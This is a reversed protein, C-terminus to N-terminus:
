LCEHLDGEGEFEKWLSECCQLIEQADLHFKQYNSLYAKYRLDQEERRAMMAETVGSSFGEIYTRFQSFWNVRITKVIQNLEELYSAVSIDAEQIVDEIINYNTLDETKPIFTAGQVFVINEFIKQAFAKMEEAKENFRIYKSADPYKKIFDLSCQERKQLLPLDALFIQIIESQLVKCRQYLKQEVQQAARNLAALIIEHENQRVQSLSSIFESVIYNKNTNFSDIKDKVTDFDKYFADDLAKPAGKCYELLKEMDFNLEQNSKELFVKHKQNQEDFESVVFHITEITRRVANELQKATVASLLMNYFPEFRSKKRLERNNSAFSELALSSSIGQIKLPDLVRHAKQIVDESENRKGLESFVESQIRHRIYQMFKDYDYDDEDLQDLFTVVFVLDNINDSQILQCVFKKETESFPARAHIPVVVADVNKITDITIQTMRAEDNLGPTDIIDIHNQCIITPYYITAEKIKLARAEGDKTIKTVYDALQDIGIEKKNGDHFTIVAKPTTGYTIRNITATTPTADAPLIKAGLLANILSSKGRKFEGMVAVRYQKNKILEKCSQVSDLLAQDFDLVSLMDQMQVLYEHLQYEVSKYGTAM